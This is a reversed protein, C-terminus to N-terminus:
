SRPVLPPCTVPYLAQPKLLRAGPLVMMGEFPSKRRHVLAVHLRGRLPTLLVLNVAVQAWSSRHPSNANLTVEDFM